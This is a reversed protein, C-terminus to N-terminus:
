RTNDASPIPRPTSFSVKYYASLGALAESCAQDDMDVVIRRQLSALLKEADVTNNSVHLRGNWDQAKAEDMVKRLMKKTSEQRFKQVNDTYYHNYTIPQQKEDQILKQLESRAAKRTGELSVDTIELLEALVQEDKTIHGM